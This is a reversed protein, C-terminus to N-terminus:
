PPHGRPFGQQQINQKDDAEKKTSRNHHNHLAMVYELLTTLCSLRVDMTAVELSSKHEHGATVGAYDKKHVELNLHQVDICNECTFM